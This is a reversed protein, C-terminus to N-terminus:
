VGLGLETRDGALAALYGQGFATAAGDFGATLSVAFHCLKLPSLCHADLTLEPGLAYKAQDFAFQSLFKRM